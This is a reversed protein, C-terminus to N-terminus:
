IVREIQYPNINHELEEKQEAIEGQINRKVEVMGWCLSTNQCKSKLCVNIIGLCFSIVLGTITIWFVSDFVEENMIIASM